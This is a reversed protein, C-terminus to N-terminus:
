GQETAAAIAVPGLTRHHTFRRRLSAVKHHEGRVVWAAFVWQADDMVRETTQALSVASRFEGDLRVSFAGNLEGALQRLRAVDYQDRSLAMFLHLDFQM